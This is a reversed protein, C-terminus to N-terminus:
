FRILAGVYPGDFEKDMQANRRVADIEPFRYGAFLGVTPLPSFILSAARGAAPEVLEVKRDTPTVVAAPWEAPALWRAVREPALQLVGATGADEALVLTAGSLCCIMLMSLCRKWTVM